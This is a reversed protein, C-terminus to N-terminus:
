VRGSALMTALDLALPWCLAWSPLFSAAGMCSSFIFMLQGELCWLALICFPLTLSSEQKGVFVLWCYLFLSYFSEAPSMLLLILNLGSIWFCIDDNSPLPRSPMTRENLVFWHTHYRSIEAFAVANQSCCESWFSIHNKNTNWSRNTTAAVSDALIESSGPWFKLEARVSRLM